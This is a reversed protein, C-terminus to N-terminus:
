EYFITSFTQLTHRAIPLKDEKQLTKGAICMEPLHQQCKDAVFQNLTYPVFNRDTIQKTAFSRQM